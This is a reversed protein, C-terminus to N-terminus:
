PVCVNRVKSFKMLPFQRAKLNGKGMASYAVIMAENLRRMQLQAFEAPPVPPSAPCSRRVRRRVARLPIDLQAALEEITEGAALATVLRQDRLAMERRTSRRRRPKRDNNRETEVMAKEKPWEQPCLMFLSTRSCFKEGSGTRDTGAKLAVTPKM